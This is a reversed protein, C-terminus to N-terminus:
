VYPFLGICIFLSRDSLVKSERSGSTQFNAGNDSSVLTYAFLGVSSFLGICVFVSWFVRFSVWVCSFLGLFVVLSRHVRFSVFSCSFLGLGPVMTSVINTM